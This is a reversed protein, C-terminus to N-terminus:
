LLGRCRDSGLVGKPAARLAGRSSRHATRDPGPMISDGAADESGAPADGEGFEAIRGDAFAVWGREIVRDALVIRANGLITDSETSTMETEEKMGGRRFSTVDVVRDAILQRIEDDHVIAVM